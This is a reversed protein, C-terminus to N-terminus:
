SPCFNSGFYQTFIEGLVKYTGTYGSEGRTASYAFDCTILQAYHGNITHSYSLSPTLLTLFLCILSTKKILKKKFYTMIIEM